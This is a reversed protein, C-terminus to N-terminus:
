EPLLKVNTDKSLVNQVFQRREIASYSAGFMGTIDSDAEALPRLKFSSRAGLNDALKDAEPWEYSMFTPLFTLQDITVGAATKTARFGAIGGTLEEVKLQASLTNGLSYWVLTKHGDKRMLWSVNQLVHPGTGIIVDVGMDTLRRAAAIQDDNPSTMDETGWHMSVIVLDANKRANSVLNAVLTDDHYNNLAYPTLNTDNSYDAFAVFAVKIDNKTFYAVTNQEEASRNAGNAALPKLGQWIAVTANLADQGKDNIHNSALNIMNCGPGNVPNRLSSAYESPANFTPYGSIGFDPGSALTEPNCFVVDSLATYKRISAYYPTFDYGAMTKAHAVISDHALQDGLASFLLTKSASTTQINTQGKKVSQQSEMNAYRLTGAVILLLCGTLIVLLSTRREMSM